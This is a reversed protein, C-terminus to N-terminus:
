DLLEIWHKKVVVFHHHVQRVWALVTSPRIASVEEVQQISEFGLVHSINDLMGVVLSHGRFIFGHLLFCNLDSLLPPVLKGADWKDATLINVM